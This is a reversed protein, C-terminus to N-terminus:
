DIVYVDTLKLVSYNNAFVNWFMEPGFVVDVSVRQKLGASFRAVIKISKLAQLYISMMQQMHTILFVPEKM